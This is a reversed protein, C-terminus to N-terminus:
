ARGLEALMAERRAEAFRNIRGLVLAYAGFAIASLGLFLPCVPWLSGWRRSWLVAVVGVAISALLVLFGALGSFGSVRSRGFRSLDVRKPSWLSILDGLALSLPLAFLAWCLTGLLVDFAPPQWLLAVAIWAIVFQFAFVGSHFINKALVVTRLSVPATYYFQVGGGESGFVNYILQPLTMLTYAIGMPFMLHASYSFPSNRSKGFVLLM